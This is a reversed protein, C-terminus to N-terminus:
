DTNRQILDRLYIALAPPQKMETPIAYLKSQKFIQRAEEDTISVTVMQKKMQCPPRNCATKCPTTKKQKTELRGWNFCWPTWFVPAGFKKPSLWSSSVASKKVASETLEEKGTSKNWRLSPVWRAHTELKKDTEKARGWKFSFMNYLTEKKTPRPLTPPPASSPTLKSTARRAFFRRIAKVAATCLILLFLLSIVSVVAVQTTRDSNYVKFGLIVTWQLVFLWLVIAAIIIFALSGILGIIYNIFNCGTNCCGNGTNCDDEELCSGNSENTPERPPPAPPCKRQYKSDITEPVCACKCQFKPKPIPREPPTDCNGETSMNMGNRLKVCKQCPCPPFVCKLPREIQPCIM